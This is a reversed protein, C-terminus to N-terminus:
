TYVKEEGFDGLHDGSSSTEEGGVDEEEEEDEDDDDDDEENSGPFPPLSHDGLSLGGNEILQPFTFCLFASLAGM